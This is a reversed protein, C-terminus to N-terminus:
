GHLIKQVALDSVQSFNKYFEGVAFFMEPAELYVVKDVEATLKKLTELAVVPLAVIVEKPQQSKVLRIAALMTAGTAAGDDTLIVTKNKLDLLAKGQRFFDKKEQLEVEKQKVIEKKYTETLCLDQCLDENFFVQGGESVAGVALEPNNPAPLKKTVLVDLPLALKGALQQGIIIGGRPIALILTQSKDIESIESLLKEALQWGAEQRDQFM